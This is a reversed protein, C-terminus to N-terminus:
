CLGVGQEEWMANWLVQAVRYASEACDMNQLSLVIEGSVNYVPCYDYLFLSGGRKRSLYQFSFSFIDFHHYMVFFEVWSRGTGAGCM